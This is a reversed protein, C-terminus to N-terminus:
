FLTWPEFDVHGKVNLKVSRTFETFAVGDGYAGFTAKVPDRRPTIVGTAGGKSVSDGHANTRLTLTNCKGCRSVTTVSRVNTRNLSWASVTTRGPANMSLSGSVDSGTGVGSGASLTRDIALNGKVGWSLDGLGTASASAAFALLVAFLTSRIM